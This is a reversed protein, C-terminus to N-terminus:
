GDSTVGETDCLMLRFCNGKNNNNNGNEHSEVRRVDKASLTSGRTAWAEAAQRGPEMPISDLDQGIDGRSGLCRGLCKTGKTTKMVFVRFTEGAWFFVKEELVRSSRWRPIGDGTLGTLLCSRHKVSATGLEQEWGEGDWSLAEEDQMHSPGYTATTIQRSM